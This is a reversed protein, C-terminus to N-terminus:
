PKGGKVPMLKRVADLVEVPIEAELQRRMERFFPLYCDGLGSKTGKHTEVYLNAVGWAKLMVDTDMPIEIVAELRIVEPAQHERLEGGCPCGCDPCITLRQCSQCRYTNTDLM